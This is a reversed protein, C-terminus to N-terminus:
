QLFEAVCTPIRSAGYLIRREQERAPEEHHDFLMNKVPGDARFVNWARPNSGARAYVRWLETGAPIIHLEPRSAALAQLSPPDPLKPM